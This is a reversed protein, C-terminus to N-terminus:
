RISSDIENVTDIFNQLNTKLTKLAYASRIQTSVRELNESLATNINRTENGCYIM